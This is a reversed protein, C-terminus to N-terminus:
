MIKLFTALTEGLYPGLQKGIKLEESPDSEDVLISLTDRAVGTKVQIELIRPDLDIEM